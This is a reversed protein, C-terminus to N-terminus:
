KGSKSEIQAVKKKADSENKFCGFFKVRRSGDGAPMRVCFRGALKGKGATIKAAM